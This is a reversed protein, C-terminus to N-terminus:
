TPTRTGAASKAPIRQGAHGPVDVDDAASEGAGFGGPLKGAAAEGAREVLHAGHLGGGRVLGVLEGLEDAAVRELALGFGGGGPQEFLFKAAEVGEEKLAGLFGADGATVGEGDIAVEEGAFDGGGDGGLGEDVSRRSSTM